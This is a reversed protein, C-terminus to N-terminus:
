TLEIYIKVLATFFKTFTRFLIKVIAWLITRYLQLEFFSLVYRRLSHLNRHRVTTNKLKAFLFYGLVYLKCTNAQIVGPHSPLSKSFEGVSKITISINVYIIYELLSNGCFTNDIDYLLIQHRVHHSVRKWFRHGEAGRM